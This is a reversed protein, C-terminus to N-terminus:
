PVANLWQKRPIFLSPIPLRCSSPRSGRSLHHCSDNKNELGADRPFGKRRRPIKRRAMGAPASEHLPVLPADPVPQPLADQRLQLGLPLEIPLPPHDIAGSDSRAVSALFGAFIRRIPAFQTAFVMQQHLAAAHWKRDPQRASISMLDRLQQGQHLTDWSNASPTSVRALFWFPQLSIAGIVGFGM